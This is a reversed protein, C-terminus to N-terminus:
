ERHELEAEAPICYEQVFARVTERIAKTEAPIEFDIM